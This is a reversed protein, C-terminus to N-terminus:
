YNSLLISAAEGDRKVYLTAQHDKQIFQPYKIANKHNFVRQRIHTGPNGAVNKWRKGDWSKSVTVYQRNKVTQYSLFIKGSSDLFLEPEIDPVKNAAHIREPSSWGGQKWYSWYIDPYSDGSGAWAIWPTNNRDVIMTTARNDQLGTNIKRPSSWNSHSYTSWQLFHYKKEQCTWVAWRKGQSDVSSVAHFVYNNGKSVQVPLTWEGKQYHSFYVQESEDYNATWVIQIDSNEDPSESSKLFASASSSVLVVFCFCLGAYGYIKRQMLEVPFM